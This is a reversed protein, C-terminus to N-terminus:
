EEEEDNWSFHYGKSEMFKECEANIAETLANTSVGYYNRFFFFVLDQLTYLAIEEGKREIQRTLLEKNQMFADEVAKPVREFM